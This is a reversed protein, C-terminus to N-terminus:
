CTALETCATCRAGLQPLTQGIATAIVGALIADCRGHLSIHKAQACTGEYQGGDLPEEM